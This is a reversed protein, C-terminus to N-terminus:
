RLYELIVKMADNASYCINCQYGANRLYDIFEIQKPTPKNGKKKMEIFLGHAVHHGYIKHDNDLVLPVIARVNKGIPVFIDLAGAKVGEEKLKMAVKIHRHGGNPIAFAFKLAPYKHAHLAIMKFLVVQEDHESPLPMKVPKQKKPKRINM